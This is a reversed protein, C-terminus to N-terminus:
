AHAAFDEPTNLNLFHREEGSFDLERLRLADQWGAVGQGDAAADPAGTALRARYLAFLPQRRHGDHAVIVALAPDSEMAQRCRVALDTPPRPCDVPLTLLYDTACASLAAAVGALPGAFGAVADAVVRAHRAYEGANRNAVVLLDAEPDLARAADLVRAVLVRGHFRELGKDRGGLRRAAGGALIAITTTARM